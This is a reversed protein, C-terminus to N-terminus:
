NLYSEQNCWYRDKRAWYMISRQLPSGSWDYKLFDRIELGASALFKLMSHRTFGIPHHLLLAAPDSYPNPVDIFYFTGNHGYKMVENLFFDPHNQHELIHSMIIIDFKRDGLEELTAFNEIGDEDLITKDGVEVGTVELDFEQRLVHLLIGRSCGVDLVKSGLHIKNKMFAFQHVARQQENRADLNKREDNPTTIKRYLGQYYTETQEDTMRNALFIGTCEKCEVFYLSIGMYNIPFVLTDAHDLESYTWEKCIPCTKVLELKLQIEESM